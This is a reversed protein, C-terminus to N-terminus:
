FRARERSSAAAQEDAAAAPLPPRRAAGASCCTRAREPGLLRLRPLAALTAAVPFPPASEFRQPPPLARLIPSPPRAGGIAVRGAWKLFNGRKLHSSPGLGM